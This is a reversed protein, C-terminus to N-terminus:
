TYRRQQWKESRYFMCDDMTDELLGTEPETALAYPSRNQDCDASFELMHEHCVHPWATKRRDDIADGGSPAQAQFAM